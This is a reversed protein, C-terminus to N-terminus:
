IVYKGGILKAVANEAELLDKKRIALFASLLNGKLKKGMFFEKEPFKTSRLFFGKKNKQPNNGIFLEFSDLGINDIDSIKKDIANILKKPQPKKISTILYEKLDPSVKIGFSVQSQNNINM